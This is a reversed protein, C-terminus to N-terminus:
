RGPSIRFRVIYPVDLEDEMTGWVEDATAQQLDFDTPLEVNFIPQGDANLVLWLGDNMNRARRMWISGDAGAVVEQVPPLHRPVMFGDRVAARLDSPVDWGAAKSREAVPEAVALWEDVLPEVMEDTVEVARFVVASSMLEVGSPSLRRILALGLREEEWSVIVVNRGLPDVSYLPSTPFPDVYFWGVLPVFLGNPRLVSGITDVSAPRLDSLMLPYREREFRARLGYMSMDEAILARGGVLLAELKYAMPTRTRAFEELRHTALHQGARSFLSLRPEPFDRMWVTDGVVGHRIISSFEGPGQGQRGMTTLLRGDSDLVRVDHQTRVFLHDGDFILRPPREFALHLPADVGGLRLDVTASYTPTQAALSGVAAAYELACVILARPM